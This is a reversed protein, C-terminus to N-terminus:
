SPVLAAAMSALAFIGAKLATARAMACARTRGKM